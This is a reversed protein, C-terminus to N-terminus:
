GQFIMSIESLDRAVIRTFQKDQNQSYNYDRHEIRVNPLEGEKPFEDTCCNLSIVPLLDMSNDPWKSPGFGANVAYMIHDAQTQNYNHDIGYLLLTNASIRQPISSTGSVVHIVTLSLLVYVIYKM